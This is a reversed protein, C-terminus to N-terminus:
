EPEGNRVLLIPSSGRTLVREAVSGYVWRTIGSRGHTSMAILNLPNKQAYEIIAEAANGELVESTVNFGLKKLRAVVESLYKEAASKMGKKLLAIYDDPMSPVNPPYYAPMVPPECVRVLVIDHLEAQNKNISEVHPLVSEAMESGDLLVIIKREAWKKEDEEDATGARALLIPVTSDRLIKDATSGIAWRKIGSYGQTAMIILNVANDKAYDLIEEAPYGNRVEGTITVQRDTRALGNAKQDALVKERTIEAIREIYNRYVPRHKQEEENCVILFAINANLRSSLEVAWPLVSEALESGDLPVLIKKYM